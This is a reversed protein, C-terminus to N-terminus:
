VTERSIKGNLKNNTKITIELGTIGPIETRRKAGSEILATNSAQYSLRQSTPFVRWSKYGDRLWLSATTPHEDPKEPHGTCHRASVSRPGDLFM